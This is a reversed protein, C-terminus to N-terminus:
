TNDKKASDLRALESEAEHRRLREDFLEERAKYYRHWLEEFRQERGRLQSQLFEITAKLDSFEDAATKAQADLADSMAKRAASRRNFFWKLFDLGGVATLVAAFTEWNIGM